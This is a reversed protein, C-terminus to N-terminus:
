DNGLRTPSASGRRRAWVDITRKVIAGPVRTGAGWSRLTSPAVGLENALAAMGGASEVMERWPSPM